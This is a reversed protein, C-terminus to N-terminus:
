NIDYLYGEVEHIISDFTDIILTDDYQQKLFYEIPYGVWDTGNEEVFEGIHSLINLAVNAVETIEESTGNGNAVTNCAQILEQISM